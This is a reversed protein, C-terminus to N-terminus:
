VFGLGRVRGKKGKDWNKACKGLTAHGDKAVIQSSRHKRPSLLAKISQIILQKARWANSVDGSRGVRM